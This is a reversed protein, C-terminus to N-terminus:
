VSSRKYANTWAKKGYFDEIEIRVYFGEKPLDYSINEIPRGEKALMTQSSGVPGGVIIDVKKANMGKLM